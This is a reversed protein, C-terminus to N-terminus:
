KGFKSAPYELKKTVDTGGVIVVKLARELDKSSEHWVKFTYSGAPLGRISFEGKSNTVAAFGHNLPLHYAKMWSHVDCKVEIPQKESVGYNIPVGKRELPAISSNFASNRSPITHTNHSANDGSMVLLPIKTRVIMAHPIFRCGKQDFVQSEPAPIAPAGPPAKELYVFVNEVGKSEPDVVLSEDPVAAVSCVHPHLVKEGVSVLPKLGSFADTLTVTGSFNGTGGGGATSAPTEGTVTEKPEVSAEPAGEVPKMTVTVVPTAALGCGSLVFGCTLILPRLLQMPLRNRM